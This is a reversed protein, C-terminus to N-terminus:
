ISIRPYPQIDILMWNEDMGHNKKYTDFAFHGVTTALCLIVPVCILLSLFM